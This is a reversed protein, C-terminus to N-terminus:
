NQLSVRTADKWKRGLGVTMDYMRTMADILSILVAASRAHWEYTKTVARCPISLQHQRSVKSKSEGQQVSVDEM